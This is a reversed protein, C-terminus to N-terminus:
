KPSALRNGLGRTSLVGFSVIGQLHGHSVRYEVVDLLSEADGLVVRSEILLDNEVRVRREANRQERSKRAGKRMGKVGYHMLQDSM